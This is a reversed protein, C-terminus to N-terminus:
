VFFNFQPNCFEQREVPIKAKLRQIKDLRDLQYREIVFRVKHAYRPDTAYGRAKIREIWQNYDYGKAGYRALIESHKNFADTLTPFYQFNAKIKYWKGKYVEHTTVRIGHGKIGFINNGLKNSRGYGTEIAAQAIAISPLSKSDIAEHMVRDFFEHIFCARTTENLNAYFLELEKEIQNKIMAEEVRRHHEALEKESLGSMVDSTSSFHFPLIVFIATYLIIQIIKKM